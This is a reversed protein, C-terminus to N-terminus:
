PLFDEEIYGGVGRRRYLPNAEACEVASVELQDESCSSDAGNDNEAYCCIYAALCRLPLGHDSVKM